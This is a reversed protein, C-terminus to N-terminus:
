TVWGNFGSASVAFSLGLYIFFSLLGGDGGGGKGVVREEHSSEVGEFFGFSGTLLVNNFVRLSIKGSALSGVNVEVGLVDSGLLDSNLSFEVNGPQLGDGSVLIGNKIVVVSLFGGDGSSVFLSESDESVELGGFSGVGSIGESEMGESGPVGGLNGGSFGSLVVGGGKAGLGIGIGFGGSGRIDESGFFSFLSGGFGLMLGSVAVVVGSEGGLGLSKGGLSGGLGLVGGGLLGLSTGVSSLTVGGSGSGFSVSGVLVGNLLGPEGNGLLGIGKGSSARGGLGDSVM